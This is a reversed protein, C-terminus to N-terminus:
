AFPAIWGQGQLALTGALREGNVGGGCPSRKSQHFCGGEKGQEGGQGHRRKGSGNGRDARQIASGLATLGVRVAALGRGTRARGEGAM